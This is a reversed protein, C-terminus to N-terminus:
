SCVRQDLYRDGENKIAEQVVVASQSPSEWGFLRVQIGVHLTTPVIESAIGNNPRVLLGVRQKGVRRWLYRVDLM